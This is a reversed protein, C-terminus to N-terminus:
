GEERYRNYTDSWEQEIRALPLEGTEAASFLRLLPSLVATLVLIGLVLETYRRYKGDPLLLGVLASFVTLATITKIYAAFAAMM